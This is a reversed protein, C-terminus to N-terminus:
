PSGLELREEPPASGPEGAARKLAESAQRYGSPTGVDSYSTGIKFGDAKGGREIYANVLTGLYEDERNRVFWLQRLEEFVRASVKIAGWVWHSDPNARKVQIERVRQEGELVVADFFEPREVPFLIFGLGCAPVDRYAAEPYWITDPLGILIDDGSAVFPAARFIADCLGNAEPQVAYVVEAGEYSGGFYELIDSKTSSIVFCLKDAGGLLMRQLLYESVALPCEKGESIRSGVPLLEKSFGLPRMRTGRGAAPIIGWM